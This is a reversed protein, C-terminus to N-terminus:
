EKDICGNEEIKECIEKFVPGCTVSGSVGDESLVVISYKPSSAPYFGCFWANIIERGNEKFRGTEASGTKGGAENTEPRAPSGTGDTVASVMYSKIKAATEASFAKTFAAKAFTEKLSAGSSDAYGKVLIPEPCNGSNVVASVVAAMQVPTASLSGQGFSFNALDGRNKIDSLVPLNGAEGLVGKGFGLKEATERIASFGLRQGLNIFFPNCSKEMAGRMDLVGHGSLDHCRFVTDEMLVKGECEFSEEVGNELAAACMVIKFVSGISYSTFARNIFPSDPSTAAESLNHVDLRPFSASALIEGSYPDMIVVAGKKIRKGAEEAIKQIDRDLTLVIGGDKEGSVTTEPETGELFRGQGNVSYSIEVREGTKKLYDNYTKEIGTVGDGVDNTYGIIHTALMDEPYREFFPFVTVGSAGSAKEECNTIFPKGSAVFGSLEAARDPSFYEFFAGDTDGPLVAASFVEKTNVFKKFNRDYINARMKYATLTYTTQGAGAETLGDSRSLDAVRFYLFTLLMAQVTFLGVIRKKM